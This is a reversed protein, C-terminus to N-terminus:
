RAAQGSHPGLGPPIQSGPGETAQQALRELSSLLEDWGPRGDKPQVYDAFQALREDIRQLTKAIERLGDGENSLGDFLPPRGRAESAKKAGFAQAIAKWNKDYPLREGREWRGWTSTTVGVAHAAEEQSLNKSERLALLRQGVAKRYAATRVDDMAQM